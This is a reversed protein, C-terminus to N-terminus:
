KLSVVSSDIKGGSIAKQPLSANPLVKVTITATGAHVAHLVGIVGRPMHMLGSSAELVGHLPNVAFGPTGSEEPSRVLVYTGIPLEVTQGAVERGLTVTRTDGMVNVRPFQAAAGSEVVHLNFEAATQADQAIATAATCFSLLFFLLLLSSLRVERFPQM